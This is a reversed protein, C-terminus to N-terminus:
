GGHYPATCAGSLSIYHTFAPADVAHGTVVRERHAFSPFGGYRALRRPM